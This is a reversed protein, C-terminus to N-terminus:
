TFKPDVLLAGVSGTWSGTTVMEIRTLNNDPQILSVTDLIEAVSSFTGITIVTEWNGTIENKVQLNMTGSGTGSVYDTFFYIKPSQKTDFIFIETGTRTDNPFLVVSTSDQCCVRGELRAVLLPIM